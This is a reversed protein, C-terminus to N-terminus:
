AKWNPVVVATDSSRQRSDDRTKPGGAEIHDDRKRYVQRKDRVLCQLHESRCATAIRSHRLCPRQGTCVTSARQGDELPTKARSFESESGRKVLELRADNPQIGTQQRVDVV